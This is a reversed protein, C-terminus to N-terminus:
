AGLFVSAEPKQPDAKIDVQDGPRYGMVAEGPMARSEGQRKQGAPYEYSYRVHWREQRNIMIKSRRIETVTAKLTVGSQMLYLDRRGTAYAFYIIAGGAATMVLGALVFLWVPTGKNLMDPDAFVNVGLSLALFALGVLLWIGGFFYWFKENGM